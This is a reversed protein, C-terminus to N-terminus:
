LIGTVCIDKLLVILTRELFKTRSGFDKIMSAIISMAVNPSYKGETTVRSEGHQIGPVAGIIQPVWTACVHYYYTM